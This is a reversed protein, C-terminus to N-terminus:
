KNSDVEVNKDNANEDDPTQLNIGGAGNNCGDIFALFTCGNITNFGPLLYIGTKSDYDVYGTADITQISEIIGDTEYDGAGSHTGILMDAGAYNAAGVTLTNTLSTSTCGSADTIVVGVIDGNNFTSSVYTDSTGTQLSEGTDMIGNANVDLFFEYNSMGALSAVITINSGYCQPSDDNIAFGSMDQAITVMSTATTESCGMADTLVVGVMDGNVLSTTSYTSTASSQLSEGSDMVGNVNIDHFFEYNSLGADSVTFNIASGACAPSDNSVTIASLDDGVLVTNPMTTEICGSGNTVRVAVMDGNVLTNTILTNNTGNQLITEGTDYAGDGDADIFYTYNSMGTPSTVFVIDDGFCQPSNNTMIPGFLNQPTCYTTYHFVWQGEAGNHVFSNQTIDVTINEYARHDDFWSDYDCDSGTGGDEHTEIYIQFTTQGCSTTGLNLRIPTDDQGCAGPNVCWLPNFGGGQTGGYDPLDYYYKSGNYDVVWEVEGGTDDNPPYEVRTFEIEVQNSVNADCPFVDWANIAANVDIYGYGYNNTRTTESSNKVLHNLVQDKTMTPNEGWILATMGSMSATAASSGGVYGVYNNNAVNDVATTPVKNGSASREMYVVFDVESGNHCIDCDSYSTNEIVGTVAVTECMSAPFIVGYWDTFTTSTGAAAYILKEANQATRIGDSIPGHSFIDGLSISIIRIDANGAANYLANALGNIEASAGVVVDNTVRYSILNAKYAIGAPTNDYGRPAVALGSMATGHGCQDVWGDNNYYGLKTLTRGGSDGETFEGNYKPNGSSLGTDMVAITIGAGANSNLWADDVNHELHHWSQISQPTIATYDAPDLAGSYDGCGEGSRLEEKGIEFGTPEFYRIEPKTTFHNVLDEHHIKAMFYPLNPNYGYPLLQNRTYSGGTLDNTKDVLEKILQSRVEAWPGSELDLNGMQSNLGVFNPVTYGIAVISDTHIITNWILRDEAESWHYVKQTEIIKEMLHSELESASMLQDQQGFSIVSSGLFVFLIPILPYLNTKRM